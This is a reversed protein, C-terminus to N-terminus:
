YFLNWIVRLILTKSEPDSLSSAYFSLLLELFKSRMYIKADGNLNLGAYILRLIWLRDMKFHISSSEFLTHFLPVIQM